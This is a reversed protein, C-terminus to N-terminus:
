RVKDAAERGINIGLGRLYVMTVDLSSHRFLSMISYPTAGDEALHVARTAKISYLTMNEPLKLKRKLKTFKATFHNRSKGFIFGEGQFMELFSDSVPVFGDKKGKSLGGPIFVMKRDRLINEYKLQRAENPRTGTHYLFMLFRLLEPDAEKKIREFTKNDFPQNGTKTEMLPKVPKFPNKDAMNNDVFFSYLLRGFTLANNFSTNSWKKVRRLNDLLSQATAQSINISENHYAKLNQTFMTLLSEYTYVSKKRLGRDPIKQKFYNLGQILTWNKVAISVTNIKSFPNYGQSLGYNVADVLQKGYEKREDLDEIRNIDEYVKIREMKHTDPNKFSYWVFWKSGKGHLKAPRYDIYKKTGMTDGYSKIFSFDKDTAPKVSDHAWSQISVEPPDSSDETEFIPTISIMKDGNQVQKM